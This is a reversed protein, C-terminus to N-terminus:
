SWCFVLCAHFACEQAPLRPSPIPRLLTCLAPLFCAINGTLSPYHSGPPPLCASTNDMFLCNEASFSSSSMADLEFLVAGGKVNCHGTAHPNRALNGIWNSNVLRLHVAGGGEVAIAGGSCQTSCNSFTCSDIAINLEGFYSYVALVSGSVTASFNAFELDAGLLRIVSLIRRPSASAHLRTFNLVLGDFSSNVFFASDAFGAGVFVPPSPVDPDGHLAFSRNM